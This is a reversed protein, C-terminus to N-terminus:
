PYAHLIIEVERRVEVQVGLEEELERALCQEFSEGADRKGGPFEWLGELHKGAPRQTILLKRQFFVLGAAVEVPKM